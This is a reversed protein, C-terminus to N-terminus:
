KIVLEIHANRADGDDSEKVSVGKVAADGKALLYSDIKCMETHVYLM